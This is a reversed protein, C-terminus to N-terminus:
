SSIQVKPTLNNIEFQSQKFKFYYKFLNKEWHVLNRLRGIKHNKLNHNGGNKIFKKNNLRFKKM